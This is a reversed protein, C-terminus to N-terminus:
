RLCQLGCGAALRMAPAAVGCELAVHVAETEARLKYLPQVHSIPTDPAVGLLVPWCTPQCLSLSVLVSNLGCQESYMGVDTNLLRRRRDPNVSCCPAM